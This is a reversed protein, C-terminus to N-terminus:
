PEECPHADQWEELSNWFGEHFRLLTPCREEDGDVHAWTTFDNRQGCHIFSINQFAQRVCDTECGAWQITEERPGCRQAHLTHYRPCVSRHPDVWERLTSWGEEPCHVLYQQLDLYDCDEHATALPDDCGQHVEGGDSQGGDGPGGDPLTGGDAGDGGDGIEGADQGDAGDAAGEDTPPTLCALCLLLPLVSLLLLTKM